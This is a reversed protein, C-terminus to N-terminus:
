SWRDRGEAAWDRFLNKLATLADEADEGHVRVTVPADAPTGLLLLDLISKADAARGATEVSIDARFRRATLVLQTAPRAHLGGAAKVQFTQCLVPM